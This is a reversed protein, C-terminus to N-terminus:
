STEPSGLQVVVELGTKGAYLLYVGLYIALFLPIPDVPDVLELLPLATFWSPYHILFGLFRKLRDTPTVTESTDARRASRGPAIERGAYAERRVFTTLSTSVAVLVVGGLGVLLWLPRGSQFGGTRLWQHLACGAVLLLAKYEDVLFDLYAGVESTQETLRALQGDAKDLVYAFQLVLTAVVLGLSNPAAILAAPVLAFTAAGALTVQNPTIPTRRLALLLLSALPRAVYVNWLADHPKTSERYIRRAEAIPGDRSDPSSSDAM